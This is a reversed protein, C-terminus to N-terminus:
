LVAIMIVIMKVLVAIMIVTTVFIVCKQTKILYVLMIATRVLIDYKHTKILIAANKILLTIM